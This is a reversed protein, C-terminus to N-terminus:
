GFFYGHLIMTKFTTKDTATREVRGEWGNQVGNAPMSKEM